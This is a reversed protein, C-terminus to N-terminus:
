FWEALYEGRPAVRGELVDIADKGMVRERKIGILKATTALIHTWTQENLFLMGGVDFTGGRNRYGLALTKPGTDIVQMMGQVRGSRTHTVFLRPLVAPPYFRDRTEATHCIKAEHRDKPETFRRPELLYVVNHAIGRADLESSAKLVQQLQYAGIATLVIRPKKAQKVVIGGERVLRKADRADFVVPLERKPVVLTFIRGRTNYVEAISAAASNYDAPFLVRSVHAAEGMLAECVVPDQHSQENKGNEYTHSTLVLPVSLWKQPRGMEQCHASFIIEQRVIGLMKAAFAEYSHVLSIGGKNGLAACAVAEENLVTIVKGHVDEAVGPEPSTVRHKFTDLTRDLRNSRMEDPNGIRPRLHPNALCIETFTNDIARMPAAMEGPKKFKPAPKKKLSVDRTALAHDREIPRRRHKRFTAVADSLDEAPVHLRKTHRNFAEIAEANMKSGIPLNHAANTGAGAFGFGKEVVALGYPLRVPYARPAGALRREMELILWAYAAPDGGDIEIPDFHNLRLHRALWDTGGAMAMTSRQDIRRGNMIMIPAVLGCDEHRWWRPAWDPGRQEEFAGDSLFTVLKEGPLPMHVYELGAFGLYGGELIGGATNPNVHSGRPSAADGNKTVGYNYFDRVFRTLGADDVTYRKFAPTINRVLVNVCDIGSVAHGQEAVWGRTDGTIMNALLYGVYAPIINLASGTHGEPTDKFDGSALTRGDLHVNRAYTDHVTLWMAASTLRDAAVLAEGISPGDHTKPFLRMLDAVRARTKAGHRIPGHGKKWAAYAEDDNAFRTRKM